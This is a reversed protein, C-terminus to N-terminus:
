REFMRPNTTPNPIPRRNTVPRGRAVGGPATVIAAARVAAGLGPPGILPGGVRESPPIYMPALPRPPGVMPKREWYPTIPEPKEQSRNQDTLDGLPYVKRETREPVPINLAKRLQTLVGSTEPRNEETPPIPSTKAESDVSPNSRSGQPDLQQDNLGRSADKLADYQRQTDAKADRMAAARGTPTNLYGFKDKEPDPPTLKGDSGPTWGQDRLRGEASNPNVYSGGTIIPQGYSGTGVGFTPKTPNKDVERALDIAKRNAEAQAKQGPSINFSTKGTNPDQTISLPIDKRPESGVAQHPTDKYEPDPQGSKRARAREANRRASEREAATPANGMTYELVMEQISTRLNKMSSRNFYNSNYGNMTDGM